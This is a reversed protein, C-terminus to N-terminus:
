FASIDEPKSMIVLKANVEEIIQSLVDALAVSLSEALTDDSHGFLGGGKTITSSYEEKIINKTDLKLEVGIVVIAYLGIETEVHLKFKGNLVPINNTNELDEGKLVIYGAHELEMTIANTLWQTVDNESYIYACVNGALCKNYGVRSKDPSLYNFKFLAITKKSDPELPYANADAIRPEDMKSEPPYSLTIYKDSACGSVFCLILIVILLRVM